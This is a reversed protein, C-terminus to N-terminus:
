AAADEKAGAMYLGVDNHDTAARALNAVIRGDFMVLVRDSLAMVEDLETSVVLVAIGQDRLGVLQEHIYEISGVDVGRTPQCAIALTLPRSIERAVIVKQQNGGSLTGVPTEVSPTRIDFNEVLQVAVRNAEGWNMNLGNSLPPEYYGTLVLNETVSFDKVMGVRQRDEPIHGVGAQHHERPTDHTVDHGSLMITGSSARRLGVLTEVLETQGNGQVGAIGVIEGAAVQFGVHDVMARGSADAVTLDSVALVVEGPEAPKKKVVLDVPRGVMMEALEEQTTAAPTTEGVTKGRRLVAIRDAIRLAEKLKHTIFVVACGAAKLTEVIRFFDEIEQPTLVATPEDFVVVQADRFLVKVIEIRQQIGVALDETVADPNLYLGFESSLETVRKRASAIDVRGLSMTPEVGLIVNETVTFVPVLMFHQHVMGIGAAIADAPSTFTVPTGDVLIEGEDAHYLGYLINMLTSKGAGNEGVLALVEGGRITLNVDDNAVVGPFRKTIGRLELEM